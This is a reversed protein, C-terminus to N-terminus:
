YMEEWTIKAYVTSNGGMGEGIISLVDPSGAMDVQMRYSGDPNENGSGGKNGSAAYGGDRLRGLSTIGVASAGVCVEMMSNVNGHPTWTPTTLISDEYVHYHCNNTGEVFIEISTPVAMGKNQLGVFLTSPRISILHKLVGSACVVGTVDNSISCKVQPIPKAGETFVASCIQMLNGSTANTLQEIFVGDDNDNYGVRKVIQTGGNNLVEYSAPLHPTQMYVIPIVNANLFQHIPWQIGNIDLFCRIRGVGLWQLDFMIIQTKSWDVTIGSPGTGDMKDVDWSAQEIRNTDSSVGSTSTRLVLAVPNNTNFNCTMAILHSQGAVYYCRRSRNIVNSGASTTVALTLSSNVPSNTLTGKDTCTLDASTIRSIGTNTGSTTIATGGYTASFEFTTTTLGTSIV